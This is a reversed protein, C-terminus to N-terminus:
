DNSVEGRSISAAYKVADKIRVYTMCRCLNGRMGIEIDEDSPNPNEKILSAAQMIQGSHCYGCQPVQMKIWAKQVPHNTSVDLGEITTVIADEVDALRIRCSRMAEGNIHVTCCGCYGGGCGFKTGTLQLSERLVWLLPTDPADDVFYARGNVTLKAM